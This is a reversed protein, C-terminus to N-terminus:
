LHLLGEKDQLQQEGTQVSVAILRMIGDNQGVSRLQTKGLHLRGKGCLSDRDFFYLSSRIIEEREGSTATCTQSNIQRGDM